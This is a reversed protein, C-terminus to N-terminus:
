ELLPILCDGHNSWETIVTRNYKIRWLNEKDIKIEKENHHTLINADKENLEFEVLIIYGNKDPGNGHFSKGMVRKCIHFPDFSFWKATHNNKCVPQKKNLLIDYETVSMARYIYMENGFDM